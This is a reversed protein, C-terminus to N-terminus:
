KAALGKLITAVKEAMVEDAGCHDNSPLCVRAAQGMPGNGCSLRFSKFVHCCGKCFMERELSTAVGVSCPVGESKMIETVDVNTVSPDKMKDKNLYIYIKYYAHECHEPVAPMTVLRLNSM